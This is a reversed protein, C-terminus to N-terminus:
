NPGFVFTFLMCSSFCKHMIRYVYVFLKTILPRFGGTHVGLVKSIGTKVQPWNSLFYFHLFLFLSQMSAHVHMLMFTFVVPYHFKGHVVYLGVLPFNWHPFAGRELEETPSNSTMHGRNLVISRKCSPTQGRKHMCALKLAWSLIFAWLNHTQYEFEIFIKMERILSM